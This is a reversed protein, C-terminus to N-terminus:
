VSRWKVSYLGYSIYALILVGYDIIPLALHSCQMSFFVVLAPTVAVSLLRCSAKFSLQLNFFIDSYLQVISSLLLLTVAFIFFYFLIILPLIFIQIVTNLRLIGSSHLWEQGSIYGSLEKDFTHTYIPNNMSNKTFGLFQKYSPPRFDIKNKTILMTLEPYASSMAFVAGTTDIISVVDRNKNKILDPMPQHYILEGHEIRLLPISQIPFLIKDKFFQNLEINMRVSLPIAGLIIVFLFYGMGLGHWHKVVRVYLSSSFFAAGLTKFYQTLM